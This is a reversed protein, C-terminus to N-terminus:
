CSFLHSCAETWKNVKNTVLLLYPDMKSTPVVKFNLVDIKQMKFIYLFSKANTYHMLFLQLM